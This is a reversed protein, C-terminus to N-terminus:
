LTLRGEHEIEGLVVAAMALALYTYHDWANTPWMVGAGLALLSLSLALPWLHMWRQRLGAWLDVTPELGVAAEVELGDARQAERVGEEVGPSASAVAAMGVLGAESAAAEPALLTEARPHAGEAGGEVLGAPPTGQSGDEVVWSTGPTAVNRESASRRRDQIWSLGLAFSLLALSMAFMHAHMDAYLFTFYPFETIPGAEGEAPPIVRTANWYWWNTAIPLREGELVRTIG